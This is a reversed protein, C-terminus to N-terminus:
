NGDITGGAVVRIRAAAVWQGGQELLRTLRSRADSSERDRIADIVDTVLSLTSGRLAADRLGLWLLSGCEAQLRLQERVLRASQSLVALELLFGGVARRASAASSFDASALWSQLRTVDDSTSLRAARDGCGTAIVTVYVITDSLDVHSIGRLRAELVSDETERPFVVFSGGDRGRRTGVMGAERVIGLGERATVLAVGFRRAMEAESPLREGPALVGLVIADSLRRAVQEARGEDDLQTFVAERAGPAIRSNADVTSPSLVM